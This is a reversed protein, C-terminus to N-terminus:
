PHQNLIEYETALLEAAGVTVIDTGVPPGASLVVRHGVARTVTVPARVYIRPEPKTYVFVQGNPNYILASHPVMKQKGNGQVQVTQLDIRAATKDSLKVRNLDTGKIAELEYPESKVLNSPVEKCGALVLGVVMLAFGARLVRLSRLPRRFGLRMLSVEM